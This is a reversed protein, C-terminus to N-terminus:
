DKGFMKILFAGVAKSRSQGAYCHILLTDADRHLEVFDLIAEAQEKTFLVVGEVEKVIDDFQLTLVGKCYQNEQFCFGFGGTHSDQISIVAYTDTKEAFEAQGFPYYHAMVYEFAEHVSRVLIRKM